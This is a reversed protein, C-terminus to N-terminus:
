NLILDRLKSAYLVYLYINKIKDVNLNKFFTMYDDPRIPVEYEGLFKRKFTLYKSCQFIFHYCTESQRKDCCKCISMVNEDYFNQLHFLKITSNSISFHGLNSRLQTILKTQTWPLFINLYEEKNVNIKSYQYRLISTSAKMRVIDLEELKSKVKSL